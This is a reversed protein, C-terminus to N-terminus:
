DPDINSPEFLPSDFFDGVTIELALCIKYMTTVTPTKIKGRYLNQVSAVPLGAAKALKYITLKREFLYFNLRESIAKAMTM